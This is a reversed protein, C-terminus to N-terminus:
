IISSKSIYKYEKLYKGQNTFRYAIFLSGLHWIAFYLTEVIQRRFGRQKIVQQDYIAMFITSDGGLM